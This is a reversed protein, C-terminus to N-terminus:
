LLFNYSFLIAFHLFLFSVILCIKFYEKFYLHLLLHYIFNHSELSGLFLLDFVCFYTFCLASYVSHSIKLSFFHFNQYSVNLYYQLDQFDSKIRHFILVQYHVQWYNLMFYLKHMQKFLPFRGLFLNHFSILFTFM